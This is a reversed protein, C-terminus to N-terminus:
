EGLSTQYAEIIHNETQILYVRHLEDRWTIQFLSEQDLHTQLKAKIEYSLKSLWAKSASFQYFFRRVSDGMMILQSTVFFNIFDYNNRTGFFNIFDYNDRTGVSSWETEKCMKFKYYHSATYKTLGYNSM